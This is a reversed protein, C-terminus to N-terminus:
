EVLLDLSLPGLPPPLFDYTDVMWRSLKAQLKRVTEAYNSHGALNTLEWPDKELDYLEVVPRPRAFYHRELVGSLRWERKFTVISHWSPSRSIDSLPQYSNEPLYNQILKYGATRVSRSLDLTTHYNREAFVADRAGYLAGDLLGLFSRGNMTQPASIGAADLWTPALDLLSILDSSTRGPKIRGPWRAILPVHLGPDYLTGKAGPFAMGQDSTLIVLTNEDLHHQKLLDVFKGIESDLREIAQAYSALDARVASTAPLFPPVSVDSTKVPPSTGNRFPRHPEHYGVHLFFPRNKPRRDFFTEVPDLRGPCDWRKWFEAGQHVKGFAATYYGAPKLYELITEQMRPMPSHFRATGTSHAPQGTLIGSRSPSCSPSAAFARDFRIGEQALRDINPTRLAKNGYCGADPYSQDDSILFVFNPLSTTRRASARPPMAGHGFGGAAGAALGTGLSRIFSRRNM